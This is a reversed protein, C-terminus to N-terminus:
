QIEIGEVYVDSNILQIFAEHNSDSLGLSAADHTSVVGEKRRVVKWYKPGINNIIYPHHSTIIFQVRRPHKLLDETLVDICNVGLSNEFEDILIVTGEPWLYLEAIHFITRIMGSSIKGEGIWNSVGAERIQIIPIFFPIDEKRPEVKVDTVQPFIELFRDRIKEFVKPQLKYVLALKFQTNLDSAQIKEITNYKDCLKEFRLIDLIHHSIKTDSDLIRHFAQSAPLISDEQNLLNIISKTPSLKPTKTGDLYIEKQTRSVIEKEDKILSESIIKPEDHQTAEREDLVEIRDSVFHEKTEFEGRWHYRHEDKTSFVIEWQVGNLSKGEAIRKINLLSRLIQTKGVGSVGVLLTLDSFSVRELRWDNAKDHYEFQEIRM